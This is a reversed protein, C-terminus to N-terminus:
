RARARKKAVSRPRQKAKAKSTKVVRSVRKLPPFLMAVLGPSLTELARVDRVHPEVDGREWRVMTSTSRKILQAVRERRFPQGTEPDTTQMRWARITAGTEAFPRTRAGNANKPTKDM